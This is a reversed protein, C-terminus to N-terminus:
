IAFREQFLNIQGQYDFITEKHNTQFWSNQKFQFASRLNLTQGGIIESTSNASYNSYDLGLHCLIKNLATRNLSLINEVSSPANENKYTYSVVIHLILHELGKSQDEIKLTDMFRFEKPKMLLRVLLKHFEKSREETTSYKELYKQFRQMLNDNFRLTTNKLQNCVLAVCYNVDNIDKFRSALVIPWVYGAELLNRVIPVARFLPVHYGAELTKRYVYELLVLCEQQLLPDIIVLLAATDPRQSHKVPLLVDHAFSYGIMDGYILLSKKLEGTNMYAKMISTLLSRGPQPGTKKMEELAKEADKINFNKLYGEILSTNLGPTEPFNEKAMQYVTAMGDIDNSRSLKELWHQFFVITPKINKSEMHQLMESPETLGYISSDTLVALAYLAAQPAHLETTLKLTEKSKSFEGATYEAQILRVYLGLGPEYGARKMEEFKDYVISLDINPNRLLCKIITVYMLPGKEFGFTSLSNYLRLASNEFGLRYLGEMTRAFVIPSKSYHNSTKKQASSPLSRLHIPINIGLNPMATVILHLRDKTSATRSRCAELILDGLVGASMYNETEIAHIAVKIAM